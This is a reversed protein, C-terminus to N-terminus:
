MVLTTLDQYTLPTVFVGRVLCGGPAPTAHVIRVLVTKAFKKTENSLSVALVVGPEVPRTLLLGVAELSLSKLAASGFHQEVPSVFPCSTGTNVPFLDASRKEALSPM